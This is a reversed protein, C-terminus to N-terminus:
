YPLFHMIKSLCDACSYMHLTHRRPRCHVDAPAAYCAYCRRPSRRRSRAVTEWISTPLLAPPLLQTLQSALLAWAHLPPQRRCYCCIGDALLSHDNSPLSSNFSPQRACCPCGFIRARHCVKVNGLACSRDCWWAVACCCAVCCAGGCWGLPVSGRLM